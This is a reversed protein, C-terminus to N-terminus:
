LGGSGVTDGEDDDNEKRNDDGDNIKVMWLGIYSKWRSGDSHGGRGM